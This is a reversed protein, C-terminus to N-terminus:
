GLHSVPPQPARHRAAAGRVPHHQQVAPARHGTAGASCCSARTPQPDATCSQGTVRQCTRQTPALLSPPSRQQRQAHVRRRQQRLQLPPAVHFSLSRPRRLYRRSAQSVGCCRVTVATPGGLHADSARPSPHLLVHTHVYTLPRVRQRQILHQFCYRHSSPCSLVLQVLFVPLGCSPPPRSCCGPACARRCHRGM